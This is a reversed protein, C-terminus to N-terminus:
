VENSQEDEDQKTKHAADGPQKGKTYLTELYAQRDLEALERAQEQERLALFLESSKSM